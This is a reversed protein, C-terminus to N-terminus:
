IIHGKYWSATCFNILAFRAEQKKRNNAEGPNKDTAPWVDYNSLLIQYLIVAPESLSSRMDGISFQCLCVNLKAM